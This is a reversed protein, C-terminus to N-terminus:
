PKGKRGATWRCLVKALAAGQFLKMAVKKAVHFVNFVGKYYRDAGEGVYVPTGGLATYKSIDPSHKCICVSLVSKVNEEISCDLQM